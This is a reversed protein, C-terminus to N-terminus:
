ACRVVARARTGVLNTRGARSSGAHCAASSGSLLPRALLPQDVQRSVGELDDHAVCIRERKGPQGERALLQQRQGLRCRFAAARAKVAPCKRCSAGTSHVIAHIWDHRLLLVQM